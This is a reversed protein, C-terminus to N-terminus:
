GTAGRLAFYGSAIQSLPSPNFTTSYGTQNTTTPVYQGTGKLQAQYCDLQQKPYQQQQMWSDYAADLQKQEQAQTSAGISELGASDQTTLGQSQQTLNALQNLAGQQRTAENGAMAGLGQGAQLQRSLDAQSSNLAQTYGRELAGTQQGLVSDQTDRIARSGIDGMRSSGFQGSRIFADSVGPLINENLNRAGLRAIEDTVGSTYPNMYDNINAVSSTNGATDIMGAAKGYDATQGTLNNTGAGAANMGPIWAGVNNRLNAYAAEQDPSSQAVRPLGYQQYSQDAVGKAAMMQQYTLDQFWQPTETTSTSGTPSQTPVGEFLGAM